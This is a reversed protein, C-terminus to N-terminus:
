AALSEEEAEALQDPVTAAYAAKVTDLLAVYAADNAEDLMAAPDANIAVILAAFRDAISLPATPADATPADSNADNEDKADSNDGVLTAAHAAVAAKVADSLAKLSKPAGDEGLIFSVILPRIAAAGPVADADDTADRPADADINDFLSFVTAVTKRTAGWGVIHDGSGSLKAIPKGAKSKPNGFAHIVMSEVMSPTSLRSVLSALISRAFPTAKNESTVAAARFAKIEAALTSAVTEITM